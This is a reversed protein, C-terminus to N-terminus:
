RCIAYIHRHLPISRLPIRIEPNRTRKPFKYITGKNYASVVVSGGKGSFTRGINEPYNSQIILQELRRIESVKYTKIFTM